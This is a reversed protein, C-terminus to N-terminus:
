KPSDNIRRRRKNKPMSLVRRVRDEIRRREETLKHGILSEDEIIEKQRKNWIHEDWFKRRKPNSFNRYKVITIGAQKLADEFVTIAKTIRQDFRPGRKKNVESFKKLV